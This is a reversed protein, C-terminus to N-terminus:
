RSYYSTVTGDIRCTSKVNLSGGDLEWLTAQASKKEADLYIGLLDNTGDGEFDCASYESVPVSTIETLVGLDISYVSLQKNLGSFRNWNVIVKPTASEDLRMFEVSEVGSCDVQIDTVSKWKGGSHMIYNLHMVTTNDDTKTSYFAFVEYEGDSNIDKTIIASRYAGSSPYVLHVKSGAYAELAKQIDYLEGSPKPPTLSDSIDTGVGSCSCMLVTCVALLILLAKKMKRSEETENLKLYRHM